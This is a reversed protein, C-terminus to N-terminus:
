LEGSLYAQGQLQVSPINIPGFSAGSYTLLSEVSGLFNCKMEIRKKLADPWTSSAECDSMQNSYLHARALAYSDVFLCFKIWLSLLLLAAVLVGGLLLPLCIIAEIVFSGRRKDSTTWLPM